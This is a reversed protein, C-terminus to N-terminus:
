TSAPRAAASPTSARCTRRRRADALGHHRRLSIAPGAQLLSGLGDRRQVRGSRRHRGRGQSRQRRSRLRHSLRRSSPRAAQTESREPPLDRTHVVELPHDFMREGVLHADFRGARRTATTRRWDRWSRHRVTSTLDALRGAVVAPVQRLARPVHLEGAGASPVGAARSTLAFSRATPRSSRSALRSRSGADGDVLARFARVALVAPRFGPDLVPMVRPAVLPLGHNTNM